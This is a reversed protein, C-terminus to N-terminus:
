RVRGFAVRVAALAYVFAVLSMWGAGTPAASPDRVAQLAGVAGWFVAFAGGFVLAFALVLSRWVPLGGRADHAADRHLWIGVVLWASIVWLSLGWPAMPHDHWVLRGLEKAAGFSSSSFRLPAGFLYWYGVYAPTTAFPILAWTPMAGRMPM